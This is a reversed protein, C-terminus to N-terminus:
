KELMDYVATLNPIKTGSGDRKLTEEPLKIKKVGVHGVPNYSINAYKLETEGKLFKHCRMGKGARGKVPYEKLPTTKVTVGTWTTIKAEDTVANFTLAETKEPLSIGTVGGATRGQPKVKDMPFALLNGENTIFAGNINELSEVWTAGVIEDNPALSIINFDDQRTPYEPSVIKVIGQKTGLVIHGKYNMDPAITILGPYQEGKRMRHAQGDKTVGIYSSKYVIKTVTKDALYETELMGKTTMYLTEEVANVDEELVASTASLTDFTQDSMTTKRPTSVIKAVDDLEKILLKNLTSTSNLIKTLEAIEKTLTDHESQLELTDYKTLRRLQLALIYESQIEDIKFEEELGNKAAASDDSARIIKIAKDIDALVLLLGKVMHQRAEKKRFRFETRRTIVNRRHDVFINLMENLSVYTPQGNVLALNQIGFSTELPTYKYLAAIIAEPKVGTKLDIILHTGLRRDTLDIVNTIGQIRKKSVEDKISSIIKEFGVQYPYEHVIIRHKGNKTPEVDMRARIKIIGKGSAYAELLQDKGVIEGGTPFDPGKIHEMIEELTAEPKEVVLKAAEITEDPNHPPMNTAMGVAIGSAGNILLNPITAPLVAPQVTSSDFNPVFDVSEEKIEGIFALGEKSLKAETNHNIFGPTLFSHDETDVKISYVDEPENHNKEVVPSIAYKKGNVYKYGAYNNKVNLKLMDYDDFIVINERGVTKSYINVSWLLEQLETLSAGNLTHAHYGEETKHTEMSSILHRLYMIKHTYSTHWIKESLLLTPTDSINVISVELSQVVPEVTENKDLYQPTGVFVLANDGEEIHSLEKWETEGSLTEVMIPHNESGKLSSGNHLVIEVIPHEGSNFGKVATVKRGQWDLVEVNTLVKESDSELQLLNRIQPLEGNALMIRTDGTVCYRSSAPSDDPTGGFNGHGDVFPVRMSFPQAMRVMAEYIASNHAVVMNYLGNTKVAIFMNEHKDVTFDFMPTPDTKIINVSEVNATGLEIHKQKPNYTAARLETGTKLNEAKIWEGSVTLFPHNNTSKVTMGNNLVMEYITETTQGVRFSHATAAVLSGDKKVATIKIKRGSNALDELTHEEGEVDVVLTDGALCDGHPHYVGMCNSYYVGGVPFAHTTDATTIDYSTEKGANTVNVVPTFMHGQLKTLNDAIKSDYKSILDILETTFIEELSVLINSSHKTQIFASGYQKIFEAGYMNVNSNTLLEVIPEGNMLHSLSFRTSPKNALINEVKGWEANNLHPKIINAFTDYFYPDVMITTMSDMQHQVFPINLRALMATVSDAIESNDDLTIRFSDSINHTIFTKALFESYTSVNKLVKKKLTKVLVQGNRSYEPEVYGSYTETNIRPKRVNVTENQPPKVIVATLGEAIDAEVWVMEYEDNVVKVLQDSTVKHTAGNGFTLQVMETNNFIHTEAVHTDRGDPTLVKDGKKFDEIPKLGEPTHVLSGAAFCTGVIRASKVHAKDPTYGNEIMTYLIRRHVPKLGDRADPLARSYIVSYSYELFSNAMEAAIDIKEVNKAPTTFDAGSEYKNKSAM